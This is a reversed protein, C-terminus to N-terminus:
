DPLLASIVKVFIQLIWSQIATNLASIRSTRNSINLILSREIIRIKACKSPGSVPYTILPHNRKNGIPSPQIRIASITHSQRKNIIETINIHIVKPSVRPITSFLRFSFATVNKVNLHANAYRNSNFVSGLRSALNM